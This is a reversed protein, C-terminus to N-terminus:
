RSRLQVQLFDGKLNHILGVSFGFASLVPLQVQYVGIAGIWGIEGFGRIHILHIRM